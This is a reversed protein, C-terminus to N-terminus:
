KIKEFIFERLTKINKYPGDIDEFLSEDIISINKSVKEQLSSEVEILFNIFGLSDLIGDQGLLNTKSSKELHLETPNLKNHEEIVDYIIKEILVKQNNIDDM